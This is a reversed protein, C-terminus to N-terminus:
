TTGELTQHREKCVHLADRRSKAGMLTGVFLAGIVAAGLGVCVITSTKYKREKDALEANLGVIQANLKSIQDDKYKLSRSHDEEMREFRAKWSAIESKHADDRRKMEEQLNSEPSNDSCGTLMLIGFVIVIVGFDRINM